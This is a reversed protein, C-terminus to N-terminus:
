SIDSADAGIYRFYADGITPAINKGVKEDSLIKVINSNGQSRVSIVNNSKIISELNINDTEIEFITDNMNTLINKVTDYKIISGNKIFAISDAIADLDEVIHTSIIVINEKSISSILSRFRIREMPDLGATPEDIILIRPSGIVAQAIGVRRLMGGSLEKIKKNRYSELNVKELINNIEQMDFTNRKLIQIHQLAEDITLHKYISFKQPLYGILSKIDSDKSVHWNIGEYDITGKFDNILTAICKMLTTKGAGNPGLLGFIGKDINLNIGKLAEFNGYRKHLNEITLM